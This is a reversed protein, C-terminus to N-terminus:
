LDIEIAEFLKGNRAKYYQIYLKKGDTKIYSFNHERHGTKIRKWKSLPIPLYKGRTATDPMRKDKKFESKEPIPKWDFNFSQLGPVPWSFASSIVSYVGIDTEEYLLKSAISVHVDGSLFVVKRISETRIFDLLRLRQESYGGWKDEPAGFPYGFVNKSDPFIPVASVIFKVYENSKHKLLWSKVAEEQYEGIMQPSKIKMYRELRVDMSFFRAPGHSFEYYLNKSKDKYPSNPWEEEYDTACIKSLEDHFAAVKEISSSLAGQYLSYAKLGNKYHELNDKYDKDNRRDIMDMHWDNKIEHDDMAMYIPLKAALSSFYPQSYARYYNDLYDKLAKAPNKMYFAGEEHDCYVQDGSMIMFDPNLDANEEISKFARDGYHVNDEGIMFESEDSNEHPDGVYLHRCSGTIFSIDKNKNDSFTTVTGVNIKWFSNDPSIFGIHYTYRTNPQLIKETGFEILGVNDFDTLFDFKKEEIIKNSNPMFIRGVLKRGDEIISKGARLWIRTKNTSTHAIMPGITQQSRNM